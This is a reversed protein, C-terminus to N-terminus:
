CRCFREGHALVMPIALLIISRGIPGKTYDRHTDRLSDCIASWLSQPEMSAAEENHDVQGVDGQALHKDKLADAM